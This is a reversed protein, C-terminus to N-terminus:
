PLRVGRGDEERLAKRVEEFGAQEMRLWVPRSGLDSLSHADSSTLFPPGAAGDPVLFPAVEPIRDPSSVEFADFEVGEPVFGLQNVLSFATRDVHSAVALGGLGHILEVGEELTLSTAGLLLRKNFGTVNDFEDAVVQVGFLQEDNEGPTLKSYVVRQLAEAAEVSDFLAVIHIEEASTMEMGPLVLLGTEEAARVTAAVNEASNHDTVGLIALNLDLARAVLRKPSAEIDACPSLCTHVHFDVLFEALKM